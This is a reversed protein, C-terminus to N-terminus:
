FHAPADEAFRKPAHETQSEPFDARLRLLFQLIFFLASGLKSSSHRAYYISLLIFLLVYVPFKRVYRNDSVAIVRQPAEYM